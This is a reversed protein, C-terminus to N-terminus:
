IMSPKCARQKNPGLLSRVRLGFKYGPRPIKSPDFGGQVDCDVVNSCADTKGGLVDERPKHSVCLRKVAASPRKFRRRDPEAVALPLELLLRPRRQAGRRMPPM